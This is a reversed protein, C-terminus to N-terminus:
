TSSTQHIPFTMTFVAWGNPDNRVTLTGHHQTMITRSLWLGVGLGEKKTTKYLEFISPMLQEDIGGGNDKIRVTAHTEDSTISIWIEKLQNNSQVLADISNNIVNILAQQIQIADGYIIPNSQYEKTLSIKKAEFNPEVIEIIENIKVQLNFPVFDSSKADFFQRLNKVLASLKSSQAAIEDVSAILRPDQGSQVLDRRTTAARLSITTLPQSLQHALSSALASIGIVKNSAILGMLLHDKEEIAQALPKNLINTSPNTPDIWTIRIGIYSLYRFVGLVIYISFIIVAIDSPEHRPLVPTPLFNATIRIFGFAVMGLEFMTFLNMFENNSLAKPLKFKCVFYNTVFLGTLVGTFLWVLTQISLFDRLLEILLAVSAASAVAILFWKKEIRKTLSAVSFFIGIEASLASLNPIFTWIPASYIIQKNILFIVACTSAMCLESFLFYVASPDMKKRFSSYLIASSVITFVTYILSLTAFSNM